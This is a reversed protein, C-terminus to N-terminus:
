DGVPDICLKKKGHHDGFVFILRDEGSVLGFRLRIYIVYLAYNLGKKVVCPKAGRRIKGDILSYKCLAILLLISKASRFFM